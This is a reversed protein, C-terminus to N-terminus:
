LSVSYPYAMIRSIVRTFLGMPLGGFCRAVTLVKPNVL